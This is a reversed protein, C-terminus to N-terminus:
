TDAEGAAAADLFLRADRHLRLYTAPLAPGIPESRLRAVVARKHPGFAFARLRRAELITAIGLTVGERSVRELGGFATAASERSEPELLVRRTRSEAVSGPENFGLHGNRGIGLVLLDLGGAVRIAAEYADPCDGDPFHRRAAPLGIPDFLRATLYSRCTAPHDAPVGLYEDLAFADVECLEREGNRVRRVWEAYLPLPTHGTALGVVLRRRAATARALAALEDVLCVAAQAPSVVVVSLRSAPSM